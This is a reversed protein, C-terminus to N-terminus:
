REKATLRRADAPSGVPRGIAAAAEAVEAVLRHTPAPAGSRDFPYDETGVRVHDGHAIAAELLERQGEGMISVTAISGEPLAARRRLYEDVTPPSWSGGPWDFFLTTIHPPTLLGRDILYRMNWISGTHWIELELDVGYEASLRAYEELEERPHLVHVDLGVFAEDHHSLIISIMDARAEFVEMREPIPLSSMGCQVVLQTEARLAEVTERWRGEAHIHAIAAGAEECLRLEAVIEDLGIPYPIEPHLWSINPTATVLLPEM